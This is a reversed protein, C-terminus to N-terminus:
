GNEHLEIFDVRGSDLDYFAPLVELLGSAVLGGLIPRAERLRAAVLRANAKAAPDVATAAADEPLEGARRAADLAPSIARAIHPLHGDLEGGALTATVAACNSHALVVVLPVELQAAAFEISGLVVEDLINGAIRVVFLDGLGQDFILEPPVRSDACGLVVAFPRQGTIISDRWSQSLHPHVQRGACYRENGSKLKILAAEWDTPRTEESKISM